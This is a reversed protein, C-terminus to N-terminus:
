YNIQNFIKNRIRIRSITMQKMNRLRIVRDEMAIRMIGNSIEIKEIKRIGVSMEVKVTKVIGVIGDSMEPKVIREIGVTMERMEEKAIKESGNIMENMEFETTTMTIKIM